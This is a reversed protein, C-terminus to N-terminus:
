PEAIVRYFRMPGNTLDDTISMVTNSGLLPADLNQWAGATLNTRFQVQYHPGPIASWSFQVVQNSYTTSTFTPTPFTTCCVPVGNSSVIELSWGGSINGSDGPAFDEAYLSWTGNPSAGLALLNTGYPGGPAPPLLANGGADTPQFTGSSLQTTPLFGTAEDDFALTLQSVSVGDGCGDMLKVAQGDPGVLLVAADSPYLHAFGNLTAKVKVVTDTIGSVVISSPYPLAKNTDRISIFGANSFLQTTILSQITGLAFMQTVSGLSASGDTLQLVGTVSDGCAGSPTFIFSRAATGGSAIAGYNQPSSPYFIGNTALLTVTLNTTAALGVNRLSWSVTVTEYPDIAGNTPSCSEAALITDAIQLLPSKPIVTFDADSIDYFINGVAAVKIRAKTTSINPLTVGHSGNNSVNTALLYPFTNGGDASLFINVGAANIPSATTNAVNWTVTQADSWGVPTNPSTVVFPGATSVVSVQADANAVGGGGVRNDRATVRFHLTRTTTPFKEQNWNTHALVSSLRPFFRVMNTTAPFSRFLPSSGNDANTLSDAAGLDMEEWCYTLPDGNPDSGTATLVFPTSAPISYGAGASVAPASNGTSTSVACSTTSIYTQIQNLSAAHFYPDSHLQLDNPSCIGAYAMITSGSGPEYAVTGARNGNCSGTICNFTHDAGFQHGMEHVVYDIYFADGVPSTKGTEGQAKFGTVCVVGLSALGGGATSFVHGIDYNGSGIRTDLTSQNQTLLADPNDNTFPDTAANTYVILDNNGVLVLRVALESEYVGDVRNVATVIAAMGDALTGGFFQTYEGTAAVALRYTRLTTGSLTIASTLGAAQSTGSSTTGRGATFCQFENAAKRYDRKYYSVHLQADGRFAPDVYVAGRPSLVQAHFGFPSLDCRVTAEPDDIGQGAYTKIEPFKAALESEMIPAEVILFRATVGDPMPLEIETGLRRAAAPEGRAVRSLTARLRTSDLQFLESRDPQLWPVAGIKAVPVASLRTWAKGGGAPQAAVASGTILM